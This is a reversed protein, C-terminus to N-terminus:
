QPRCPTRAPAFVEVREVLKGTAAGGPMAAKMGRLYKDFFALTYSRVVALIAVRREVDSADRAALLSLDSFDMHTTLMNQLRVRYSGMGTSRLATEQYEDLRSTIQEIRERSMKMEAVEQDSLRRTPPDRLILMFAQDMGWGRPDLYFPRKAM